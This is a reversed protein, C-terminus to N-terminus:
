PNATFIKGRAQGEIAAKEEPRLKIALNHIQTMRREHLSTVHSSVQEAVTPATQDPTAPRQRTALIATLFKWAISLIDHVM